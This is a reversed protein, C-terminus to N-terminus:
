GAVSAVSMKSRAPAGTSNAAPRKRPASRAAPRSRAASGANRCTTRTGTSASSPVQSSNMAVPAPARSATAARAAATAGWSTLSMRNVEPVVPRLLPTSHACRCDSDAEADQAALPFIM